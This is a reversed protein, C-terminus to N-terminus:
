HIPQELTSGWIKQESYVACKLVELTKDSHFKEKILHTYSVSIYGILAGIALAIVAIVIKVMIPGM